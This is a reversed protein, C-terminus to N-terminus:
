SFGHFFAKIPDHNQSRSKSIERSTVQGHLVWFICSWISLHVQLCAANIVCCCHFGGVEEGAECLFCFGLRMSRALPGGLDRAVHPGFFPSWFFPCWPAWIMSPYGNINMSPYGDIFVKSIWNKLIWNKSIWNKSFFMVLGM